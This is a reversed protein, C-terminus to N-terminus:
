ETPFDKTWFMPVSDEQLLVLIYRNGFAAYSPSFLELDNAVEMEPPIDELEFPQGSTAYFLKLESEGENWRQIALVGDEGVASLATLVPLLELTYETLGDPTVAYLSEPGVFIAEGGSRMLRGDVGIPGIAKWSAGSTTFWVTSGDIAYFGL